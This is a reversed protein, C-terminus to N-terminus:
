QLKSTGLFILRWGNVLWRLINTGNEFKAGSSLFSRFFLSAFLFLFLFLVDASKVVHRALPLVLPNPAAVEIM